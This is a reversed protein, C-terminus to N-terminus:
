KPNKLALDIFPGINIKTGLIDPNDRRMPDIPKYGKMRAVGNLQYEVGGTKFIAAQGTSYVYGKDVTFAWEEEYQEKTVLKGPNGGCSFLFVVLILFISIRTM